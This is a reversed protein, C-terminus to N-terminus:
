ARALDLGVWDGNADPADFFTSLSGDMAMEKTNGGNNWSGPTGIITGSLKVDARAPLVLTFLTLFTLLTSTDSRPLTPSHSRPIANNM